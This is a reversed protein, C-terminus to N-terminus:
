HNANIKEGKIREELIGKRFGVKVAPIENPDM